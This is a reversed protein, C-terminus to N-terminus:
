KWSGQSDKVDSRGDKPDKARDIHTQIEWFRRRQDEELNAFGIEAGHSAISMAEIQMGLMKSLSMIRTHVQEYQLHLVDAEIFASSGSTIASRSIQQDGVKGSSGASTEFDRLIKDVRQKFTKLVESGVKLDAAAATSVGGGDAPIVGRGGTEGHDLGIACRM